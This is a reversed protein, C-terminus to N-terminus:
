IFDYLSLGTGFAPTLYTATKVANGVKPHTAGYDRMTNHLEPAVYGTQGKRILKKKM